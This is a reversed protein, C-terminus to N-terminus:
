EYYFWGTIIYKPKEGHVVNGRHVHTFAAPWIIMSNEKPPIRLKQYLFETEGACDDELTNLYLSYVLGRNASENNGQESHWIHYGGGPCTKQIKISSCRLAFEGLVDYEAIYDEFCTQLGNLFMREANKEQFPSLSHNRMNLFCFEDHKKNKPTGETSQRNGCFGTSNLREFESIIHQCYYEPFVNDYMGIFQNYKASIM